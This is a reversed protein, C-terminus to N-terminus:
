AAPAVESVVLSIKMHHIPIVGDSRPCIELDSGGWEVSLLDIHDTRGQGLFALQALLSQLGEKDLRIELQDPTAGAFPRILHASIM